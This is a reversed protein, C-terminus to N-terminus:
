TIRGLHSFPLAFSLLGGLLMEEQALVHYLQPSRMSLIPSEAVKVDISM